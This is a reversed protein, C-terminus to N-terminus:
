PATAPQKASPQNTPQAKSPGKQPPPQKPVLLQDLPRFFGDYRYGAVEFARGATRKTLADDQPASIQIWHKEGVEAGTVTITAGDKMTLVATVPKSFDISALSAVDDATVSGFVAPPPSLTQADAAKRGPPVGDLAFGKDTDAAAKAPTAASAASAAPAAAQATTNAAAPAPAPAVIRHISYPAGSVPKYDIRNINDASIDLLKTEIWYRPESEVYISPAVLYSTKEDGRRVFNGDGSPKGVIVSHSGDQVAFAIQTGVATAATPDDVGILAYNAPDSTKEEIIKADSLALLLKRLKSVDAPYDGRQAVTWQGGKKKLSVTPAAAGKRIDLSSVTGLEGALAPFLPVDRADVHGANRHMSLFLAASIALLAAVVLAAFRQRSM